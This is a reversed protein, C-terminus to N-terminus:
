DDLEVKKAYIKINTYLQNSNCFLYFENSWRWFQLKKAAAINDSTDFSVTETRDSNFSKNVSLTFKFTIQHNNTMEGIIIFNYIGDDMTMGEIRKASSQPLSALEGVKKYKQIADSNYRDNIWVSM